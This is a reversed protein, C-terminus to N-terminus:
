RWIKLSFPTLPSYKSPIDMNVVSCISLNILRQWMFHPSKMVSQLSNLRIFPELIKDELLRGLAGMMIRLMQQTAQFVSSLEDYIDLM